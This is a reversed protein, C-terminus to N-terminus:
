KGILKAIVNAETYANNVDRYAITNTSFPNSAGKSRVTTADALLTLEVTKKSLSAAILAKLVQSDGRRSFLSAMLFSDSGALWGALRGAQGM